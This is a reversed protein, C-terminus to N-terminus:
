GAMSLGSENTAEFYLPTNGSILATGIMAYHAYQPATHRFSFPFRRPTICIQERYDYELDLNRGFYHHTGNWSVATCM